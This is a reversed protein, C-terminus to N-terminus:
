RIHTCFHRYGKAKQAIQVGMISHTLINGGEFGQDGVLRLFHNTEIRKKVSGIRPM